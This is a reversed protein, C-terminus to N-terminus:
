FYDTKRVQKQESCTTNTKTKNAKLMILMQLNKNIIVNQTKVIKSNNVNNVSNM